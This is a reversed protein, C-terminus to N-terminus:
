AGDEESTCSSKAWSCYCLKQGQGTTEQIYAADEQARWMSNGPNVVDVTCLDATQGPRHIRGMLQEWVAGSAPPELVVMNPWAQMNKGKGHVHLSVCPFDETGKPTDTGAGYVDFGLTRLREEVAHSQYVIVARPHETLAVALAARLPRDDLWVAEPEPGPRDKVKSWAGWALQVAANMRGERAHKEILAPSDLGARGAYRLYHTVVRHWASRARLWEEDPEGDPWVARYYFGMRLCRLALAKASAEVIETGDPLVWDDNLKKIADAVVPPMDTKIVRCLLSTGIAGETTAIIGPTSRLRQQFARRPSDEGAWDLLAQMSNKDEYTPEGDVGVVADWQALVMDHLPTPSDERLALEMLHSMEYLRKGTLTGSLVVFRTSPNQRAYRLVRRTRASTRHRLLHAEDLVVLDPKLEDLIHAGSTASLRSYPLVELNEHFPFHEGWVLMDRHAQPLLPPPVLVVPRECPVVSPALLAILTKGHGVGILGVLGKPPAQLSLCRLAAGQVLRLSPTDDHGALAKTMRDADDAASALEDVRPISTIRIVDLM